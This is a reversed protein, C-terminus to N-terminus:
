VGEQPKEPGALPLDPQTNLDLGIYIPMVRLPAPYPAVSPNTREIEAACDERGPRITGWALNGSADFGAYAPIEKQYTKRRPM